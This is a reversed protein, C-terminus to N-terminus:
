PQGKIRCLGLLSLALAGDNRVRAQIAVIPLLQPRPQWRAVLTPLPRLVAQWARWRGPLAPIVTTRLKLQGLLTPCGTARDVAELTFLKFGDGEWNRQLGERGKVVMIVECTQLVRMGFM